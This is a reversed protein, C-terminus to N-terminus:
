LKKVRNLIGQLGQSDPNLSRRQPGEDIGGSLGAIGGGALPQSFVGQTGYIQEAGFTDKLNEMKYSEQIAKKIELAGPAINQLVEDPTNMITKDIKGQDSKQYDKFSPLMNLNLEVQSPQRPFMRATETDMYDAVGPMGEMQSKLRLKSDISKAREADFINEAKRDIYQVIDPNVYNQELEKKAAELELKKMQIAETQDGEYGFESGTNLTELNSIDQQISNVKAQSERLKDVALKRDADKGFKEAEIGSTFDTAGFTLTDISKLLANTPKEGLITRGAAELGVYALEPVIGYKMLGSVVARGGRLLKAADQVQDATKFKGENFNKIGSEICQNLGPTGTQYGIRGGDRKKPGFTVACNGDGFSALLTKLENENKIGAVRMTEKQFPQSKKFFDEGLNTIVNKGAQRYLTDSTNNVINKADEISKNIFATEYGMGKPVVLQLDNLILKRLQKNQIKDYANFLATNLKGGQLQLGNFPKGKVGGFAEDHGITLKDGTMKLLQQLTIKKSPNNPDPVKLRNKGSLDYIEKFLGSKFGKTKLNEKHFFQDEYEFGVKNLDLIRNGDRDRPLNEFNIPTGKTGNARKKYFKVLSEESTGDRFHRNAHRVAFNLINSEPNQYRTTYSLLGKVDLGGQRFKAYEFVEDFNSGIFDKALGSKNLYNFVQVFNKDKFNSNFQLASKISEVNRVGSIDGIMQPILSYNKLVSTVNKPKKLVVEGNVIKNFAKNIKTNIDEMGIKPDNMIQLLNQGLVSADDIKARRFIEGRNYLIKDANNHDKILSRAFNEQIESYRNKAKYNLQNLIRNRITNVKKKDKFKNDLFTSFGVTKTMDKKKVADTLTKEWEKILKKDATLIKKSLPTGNYGPRSGDASPQVLMGGDMMPNRENFDVFMDKDLSQQPRDITNTTTISDEGFEKKIEEIAAELPDM